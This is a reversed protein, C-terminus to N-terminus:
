CDCIDGFWTECGGWNGYCQQNGGVQLTHCNDNCLSANHVWFTCYGSGCWGGGTHHADPEDSGIWVVEPPIPEILQNLPSVETRNIEEAVNFAFLNSM